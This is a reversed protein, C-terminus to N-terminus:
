IYIYIRKKERNTNKAKINKFYSSFFFNIELFKTYIYIIYILLIM